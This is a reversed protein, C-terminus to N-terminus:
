VADGPSVQPRPARMRRLMMARNFAYWGLKFGGDTSDPFRERVRKNVMRGLIVGDIALFIAFVLMVVTAYQAISPVFMILILVIAMPIFLGALNRRSDVLDRVYRRVPGQDRPMLYKEEGAMMRERQDARQNRRENSLERKEQKSMTSRREKRRARAEARTQPAPAVPGRRKREADRRKPTPRGKGETYARSSGSTPDDVDVDTESTDDTQVAPGDTEVKTWPM